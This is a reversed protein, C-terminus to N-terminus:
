SPEELFSFYVGPLRVGGDPLHVYTDPRNERERRRSIYTIYCLTTPTTPLCDPPREPLGIEVVLRSQVPQHSLLRGCFCCRWMLDVDKATKSSIKCIDSRRGYLSVNSGYSAPCFHQPLCCRAFDRRLFVQTLQAPQCFRPAFTAMIVCSSVQTQIGRCVSSVM